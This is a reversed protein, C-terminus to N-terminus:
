SPLGSIIAIQSVDSLQRRRSTMQNLCNSIGSVSWLQHHINKLTTWCSTLGVLEGDHQTNSLTRCLPQCCKCCWFMILVGYDLPSPPPPPVHRQGDSQPLHHYEVGVLGTERGVTWCDSSLAINVLAKLSFVKKEHSFSM